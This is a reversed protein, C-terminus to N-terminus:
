NSHRFYEHRVVGIACGSQHRFLRRLPPLRLTFQTAGSRGRESKLSPLHRPAYYRFSCKLKKQRLARKFAAHSSARGGEIVCIVGPKLFSYGELPLKGDVIALDFEGQIQSGDSVVTLHQKLDDPINIDLQDLCFADDETRVVRRNTEPYSLLMYTITGIGAGFEVVSTINRSRLLAALYRLAAESAIHQAGPRTAFKHHIQAAAACDEQNPIIRM